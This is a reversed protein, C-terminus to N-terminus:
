HSKAYSIWEKYDKESSPFHSLKDWNEVIEEISKGSVKSLWKLDPIIKARIITTTEKNDRTKYPGKVTFRRLIFKAGVGKDGIDSKSISHTFRENHGTSDRDAILDKLADVCTIASSKLSFIHGKGDYLQHVTTYGYMTDFGTSKVLEVPIDETIKEGTHGYYVIEDMSSKNKQAHKEAEEKEMMKDIIYVAAGITGIARKTCIENKILAKVNSGFDNNPLKSAYDFYKKYSDEKVISEVQSDYNNLCKKLVISTSDVGSEASQAMSTFGYKKIVAVALNFIDKVQYCAKDYKIGSTSIKEPDESLLSQLGNFSILRNIKTFANTGICTKVCTGGATIVQGKKLEITKARSHVETDEDAKFIYIINRNSITKGCIDCHNKSYRRINAEGNNKNFVLDNEVDYTGIITWKPVEPFKGTVKVEIFSIHNYVEHKGTKSVSYAKYGFKKNEKEIAAELDEYYGEIIWGSISNTTSNDVLDKIDSSSSTQENLARTFVPIM